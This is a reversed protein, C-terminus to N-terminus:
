RSDEDQALSSSESNQTLRAIARAAAKQEAAKKSTGEGVGLVEGEVLVEATFQRLHPPGSIDAIRYEPRLARESQVKRQLLSKFDGPSKAARRSRGSVVAELADQQLSLIVATAAEHGGDIYVAGLVAEYADALTGSRDRGGTKEEGRGLRLYAGLDLSEAVEMLAPECVLESLQNSLAGEPAKEDERFLAEAIVLGLVADGLFELRQNDRTVGPNENAYSRHTLARQLLARDEFEYGILSELRALEEQREGSMASM